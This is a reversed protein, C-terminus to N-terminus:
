PTIIRPPEELMADRVARPIAVLLVDWTALEPQGRLSLVMEDPAALRIDGLRAETGNHRPDSGRKSSMLLERCDKVELPAGAYVAFLLLRAEQPIDTNVDPGRALPDLEHTEMATQVVVPM